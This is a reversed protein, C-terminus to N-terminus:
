YMYTKGAAKDLQSKSEFKIKTKTREITERTHTPRILQSKSEFKIKTKTREIM